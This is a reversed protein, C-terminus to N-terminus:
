RSPQTAQAHLEIALPALVEEGTVETFRVLRGRHHRIECITRQKSGWMGLQVGVSVPPIEIRSVTNWPVARAVRGLADTSLYGQPYLYFARRRVQGVALAGLLWALAATAVGVLALTIGQAAGAVNAGGTLVVLVMSLPM